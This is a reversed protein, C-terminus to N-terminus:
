LLKRGGEEPRSGACDRNFCCSEEFIRCVDTLRRKIWSTVFRRFVGRFVEFLASSLSKELRFNVTLLFSIIICNVHSGLFTTM